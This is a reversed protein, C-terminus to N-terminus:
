LVIIKFGIYCYHIGFGSRRQVGVACDLMGAVTESVTPSVAINPVFLDAVGVFFNTIIYAVADHFMKLLANRRTLTDSVLDFVDIKRLTVVSVVAVAGFAHFDDLFLATCHGSRYNAPYVSDLVIDAFGVVSNCVENERVHSSLRRALGRGVFVNMDGKRHVAGTCIVREVRLVAIFLGRKICDGLFVYYVVVVKRFPNAAPASEGVVDEYPIVCDATVNLVVRHEIDHIVVYHEEFFATHASEEDLLFARRETHLVDHRLKSVLYVPVGVHCAVFVAVREIRNKAPSVAVAPSIYAFVDVTYPLFRLIDRSM